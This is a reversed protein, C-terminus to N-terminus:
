EEEPWPADRSLNYLVALVEATSADAFETMNALQQNVRERVVAVVRDREPLDSAEDLLKVAREWAGEPDKMLAAIVILGDTIFGLLEKPDSYILQDIRNQWPRLAEADSLGPVEPPGVRQFVKVVKVM